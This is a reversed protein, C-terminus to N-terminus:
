AIKTKLLSKASATTHIHPSSCIKCQLDTDAEMDFRSMIQLICFTHSSEFHWREYTSFIKLLNGTIVVGTDPGSTPLPSPTTRAPAPTAVPGVDRLCRQRCETPDTFRNQNGGCGSFWFPRCDNVSEDFYYMVEQGRCTGYDKPQRCLERPIPAITVDPGRAAFVITHENVRCLNKFRM